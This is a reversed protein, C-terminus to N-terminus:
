SKKDTLIKAIACNFRPRESVFTKIKKFTSLERFFLFDASSVGLKLIDRRQEFDMKWGDDEDLARALDDAKEPTVSELRCQIHCDQVRPYKM